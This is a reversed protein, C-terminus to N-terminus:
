SRLYGVSMLSSHSPQSHIYPSRISFDRIIPSGIGRLLYWSTLLARRTYALCRLGRLDSVRLSMRLSSCRNSFSRLSHFRSLLSMPPSIRRVASCFLRSVTASAKPFSKRCKVISGSASVKCSLFTERRARFFVM